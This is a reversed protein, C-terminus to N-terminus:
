AARNPCTLCTQVTEERQWRWPACEGHTECSFIPLPGRTAHCGVECDAVRLFPQRHPCDRGVDPRDSWFEAVTNRLVALFQSNTLAAAQDVFHRRMEALDPARTDLHTIIHGRLREEPHLGPPRAGDPNGFRHCWKLWPLCLCRGGARRIRQHLHFEEPGFGRLLPHFGPWADRRCAFLGCGQMEIEFGDTTYVRPDTAWTGYMLSGWVPAFHTGIIDDLGGDGICPGQVLDRTGPHAEFWNILRAVTGAPLLVHCDMVLVAPASALDFIRGKAAATGRTATYHEYRAGTRECLQRVKFSHNDEAPRHPDAAPDNDIVIIEVHPTAEQHCLRLSQITAWVGPWDRYTAMGITLRPGGAPRPRDDNLPCGTCIPMPSGDLLTRGHDDVTCLGRQACHWIDIGSV